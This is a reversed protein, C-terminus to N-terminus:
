FLLPASLGGALAVGLEIEVFREVLKDEIYQSLWSGLGMASLYLGIVLCFQTVSDGLVYSALTGSVLEYVLGSTAIVFVSALLAPHVLRRPLVGITPIGEAAPTEGRAVPELQPANLASLHQRQVTALLLRRRLPMAQRRRPLRVPQRHM